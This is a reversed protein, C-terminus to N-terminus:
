TIILYVSGIKEYNVRDEKIAKYVAGVTVGKLDAFQRVTLKKIGIKNM